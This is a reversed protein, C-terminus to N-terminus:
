KEQRINIVKGNIIDDSNIIKAGALKMKEIADAGDNQNINVARMTDAIAYVTIKGIRNRRVKEAVRLADLTTNMVCYDTALGGILLAIRENNTPTILEEIGIGDDTAGEFGSYGDTQGMGKNIIVDNDRIDLDARFEAGWTGDIGHKPWKDFHPTIDPHKERTAIVTGGCDRTYQMLRNLAPIVNEGEPVPLSGGTCFDNTVDVPITIIRDVNNLREM